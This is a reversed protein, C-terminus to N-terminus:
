FPRERCSAICPHNCGAALFGSDSEWSGLIVRPCCHLNAPHSPPSSRDSRENRGEGSSNKTSPLNPCPLFFHPSSPLCSLPSSLLPIASKHHSPRSTM